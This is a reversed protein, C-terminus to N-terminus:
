VRYSWESCNSSCIAVPDGKKLGSQLLNHAIHDVRQLLAEYTWRVGQHMVVLAERDGCKAATGQLMAGVTMELLPPTTPGCLISQASLTTRTRVARGFLRVLGLAAM